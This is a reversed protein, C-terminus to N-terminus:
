SSTSAGAGRMEPCAPAPAAASSPERRRQKARLKKLIEHRAIRAM